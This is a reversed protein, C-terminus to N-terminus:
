RRRILLLNMQYGIRYIANDGATEGNIELQIEKSGRVVVSNNELSLLLGREDDMGIALPDERHGHIVTFNSPKRGIRPADDRELREM